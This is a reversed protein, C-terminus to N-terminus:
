KRKWDVKTTTAATAQARRSLRGEATQATSAVKAMKIKILSEASDKMQHTLLEASDKMKILKILPKASNTKKCKRPINLNYNTHSIIGILLTM